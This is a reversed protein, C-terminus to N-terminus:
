LWLSDGKDAEQKNGYYSQLACFCGTEPITVDSSPTGRAPTLTIVWPADDPVVVSSLPFYLKLTEDPFAFITKEYM